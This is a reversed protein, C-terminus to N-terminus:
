RAVPGFILCQTQLVLQNEFIVSIVFVTVSIGFVPKAFSSIARGRPPSSDVAQSTYSAARRRATKPFSDSIFFLHKKDNYPSNYNAGDRAMFSYSNTFNYSLFTVIPNFMCPATLESRRGANISSIALPNM